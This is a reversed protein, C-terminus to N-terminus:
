GFVTRTKIQDTALCHLSSWLAHLTQPVELFNKCPICLKHNNVLQNHNYTM